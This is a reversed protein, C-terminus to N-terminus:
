EVEKELEIMKDLIQRYTCYSLYNNSRPDNYHEHIGDSVVDELARKLLEWKEKYDM